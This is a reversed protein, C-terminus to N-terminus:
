LIETKVARSNWLAEAYAAGCTAGRYRALTEKTKMSGIIKGKAYKEKRVWANLRGLWEIAEEWEEGIDVFTNAEFGITHRPGNDYSYIARPPRYFKNDLIRGAHRLAVRSLESAVMHDNHNDEKWLHLAIDPKIDAVAEAVAEQNLLRADFRHSAFDLFRAEVGRDASLETTFKVLEDERGAVPPWNTYDGILHLMVVRYKKRVAQLLIGPVGFICDDYHAGIALLTKM